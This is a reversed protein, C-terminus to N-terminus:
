FCSPGLVSGQPVGIYLIVQHSTKNGIIVSQERSGLYSSAWKLASGCVGVESALRELLIGHDTKYIGHCIALCEQAAAMLLLRVSDEM